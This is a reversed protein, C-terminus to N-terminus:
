RLHYKVSKVDAEWKDSFHPAGPPIFKWQTGDSTLLSALNSNEKSASFLKQLESDADKLNTGCGSTLTTCIGRRSTFRKYAAIFAETTYDTVLISPPLRFACLYSSLPSIPGPMGGRGRKQISRDLM